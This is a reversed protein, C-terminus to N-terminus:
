ADTHDKRLFPNKPTNGNLFLHVTVFCAVEVFSAIWVVMYLVAWILSWVGTTYTPIGQSLILVALAISAIDKKTAIM